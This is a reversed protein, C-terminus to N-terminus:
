RTQHSNQSDQYGMLGHFCSFGKSSKSDSWVDKYRMEKQATMLDCLIRRVEPKSPPPMDPLYVTLYLAARQMRSHWWCVGGNLIGGTNSFSFLNPNIGSPHSAALSRFYKESVAKEKYEERSTAAPAWDSGWEQSGGSSGVLKEVARKFHDDSALPFLQSKPISHEVLDEEDTLGIKITYESEKDQDNSNMSIGRLTEAQIAYNRPHQRSLEQISATNSM